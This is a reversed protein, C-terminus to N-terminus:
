PQENPKHASIMHAIATDVLQPGTRELVLIQAEQAAQIFAFRANEAATKGEMAERCAECAIGHTESRHRFWHESLSTLAHKVDRVVVIRGTRPSKVTIHDFLLKEMCLFTQFYLKNGTAERLM